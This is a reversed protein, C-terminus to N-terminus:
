FRSSTCLSLRPLGRARLGATLAWLDAKNSTAVVPGPASLVTPVAVASTKNARPGM